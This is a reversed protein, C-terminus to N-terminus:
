NRLLQFFRAIEMLESAKMRAVRDAEEDHGWTETQFIHDLESAAFTEEATLRGDSLALAIVASGALTAAAHLAALAFDGHAAIARALAVLAEPPQETFSIGTATKLRAGHRAKAWELLPDWQAMQRAVLGSPADARYCLLDSRAFGLIQEAALTRNAGVHDIATNALKTLPMTEPALKPGQARWEGAVAEALAETPLALAAGVPTKIPKGDLLISYRGGEGAVGVEKYFRNRGLSM